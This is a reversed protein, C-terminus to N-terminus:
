YKITPAIDDRFAYSVTLLTYQQSSNDEYTQRVLSQDRPGIRLFWRSIFSTAIFALNQYSSLNNVMLFQIIIYNSKVFSLTEWGFMGDFVYYFKM